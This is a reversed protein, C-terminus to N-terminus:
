IVSVALTVILSMGFILLVPTLSVRLVVFLLTLALAPLLRLTAPSIVCSSLARLFIKSLTEKQEKMPESSKDAPRLGAKATNAFFYCGSLFFYCSAAVAAYFWFTRMGAGYLLLTGGVVICFPMGYLTKKWFMHRFGDLFDQTTYCKGTHVLQACVFNLGCLSAPITVIPASFLFFLLNAFILKGFHNRLIFWFRPLGSAPPPAYVGPGPKFQGGRM